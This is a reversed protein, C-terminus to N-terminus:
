FRTLAPYYTPPISFVAPDRRRRPLMPGDGAFVYRGPLLYSTVPTTPSGFFVWTIFYAPSVHLRLGPTLCSVQVQLGGGPGIGPPLPAGPGGGGTRGKSRGFFSRGAGRIWEVWNKMGSFRYSLFSSLSREVRGEAEQVSALAFPEEQLGQRQVVDQWLRHMPFPFDAYREWLDIWDVGASPWWPGGLLDSMSIPTLEGDDLKLCLIDGGWRHAVAFERAMEGVNALVDNIPVGEAEEAYRHESFLEERAKHSPGQESLTRFDHMLRSSLKRARSVSQEDPEFEPM